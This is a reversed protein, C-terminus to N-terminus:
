DGVRFHNTESEILKVLYDKVCIKVLWSQSKSKQCNSIAKSLGVELAQKLDFEISEVEVERFNNAAKSELGVAPNGPRFGKEDYLRYNNAGTNDCNLLIIGRANSVSTQKKKNKYKDPLVLRVYSPSVYGSDSLERSIEESIMDLPIMKELGKALTLIIDARAKDLNRFENKAWNFWDHKSPSKCENM